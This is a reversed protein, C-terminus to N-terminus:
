RARAVFRFTYDILSLADLDGTVCLASRAGDPWPWYRVLPADSAEIHAILDPRRRCRALLADDLFVSCDAASAGTRVPYGMDRLFSATDGPAGDPLGIVPLPGEPLRLERVILRRYDGAWPRAMDGLDLGRALVTARPSCEFLVRVGEPRPTVTIARAARERWWDNVDRLRAVWVPPRLDAARRLLRCLADLAMEGLEPHFQLVFVEGRWHTAALVRGWEAAMGGADLRLGDYLQLDDPLSVPIEVMGSRMWPICLHEAADLPRYFGRLVDYVATAGLPALPRTERFDLDRAM